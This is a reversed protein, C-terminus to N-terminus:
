NAVRRRMFYGYFWHYQCFLDWYEDKNLCRQDNTAINMDAIIDLRLTKDARAEFVKQETYETDCIEAWAHRFMVLRKNELKIADITDDWLPADDDAVADTYSITGDKCYVLINEVGELFFIPLIRSMGRKNNCTEHLRSRCENEPNDSQFISGDCSALINEYACFHPYPPTDIHTTKNEELNMDRFEVNDLCSCHEKYFNTDNGDRHPIVHELTVQCQNDVRHGGVEGNMDRMCYCCYGHQEELLLSKFDANRKFTDFDCNVYRKADENWQGVLFGNVIAHGREAFQENTKDIWKM